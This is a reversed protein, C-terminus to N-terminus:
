KASAFGVRDKGMDFETYYRGIFVDGVGCYRDRFGIICKLTDDETLKLVYDEGTLRFTKGGMVFNIDPLNSIEDCNVTNNIVGIERKIVAIDSLSGFILSAGTDVVTECGNTYLINDRIQVKDMTFQWYVRRTVNVYTFDGNYHAPDSGGLILEGGIVDSLNRNLHFSFIPQSVMERDIINQFVSPQKFASLAPYGMGLIGDCQTWPLFGESFNFVEGFKQRHRVIVNDNSLNGYLKVDQWKADHYSVNFTVGEPVYTTSKTNDYKNHKLCAPQSVNCNKSPVWLGSSGTDFLVKFKQPPTGIEIQGYYHMNYFNILPVTFLRLQTMNNDTSPQRVFYTRHLEANILAFSIVAIAVCLRYM